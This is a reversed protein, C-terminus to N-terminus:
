RQVFAKEVVFQAPISTNGEQMGLSEFHEILDKNLGQSGCIMFRDVEPDLSQNVTTYFLNNDKIWETIRGTYKWDQQTLTNFYKFNGLTVQQWDDNFTELEDKYALENEYQVTHTLIVKEFREYTKPDKIIGMYPALGTGTAILYLNRGPLLYDIVLTGTSRPNVLIEDGEKIHQLKSTLPGDQIKISLFELFDEHNASAISYARMIKKGEHEMGIMAFEGNNFKNPFKRTTRFSFTKDSWHKVQLVTEKNVAM